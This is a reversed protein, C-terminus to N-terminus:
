RWAFGPQDFQSVRTSLGRGAVERFQYLIAATPAYIEHGLTPIFASLVPQEGESTPTLIPIDSSDLEDVPIRHVEAVEDPSPALELPEDAWLVFPSICYGSRTAYDDLRGVFHSEDLVLGLEERLERLATQELTEGEDVRGGPLAYQGGHRRMHDPRLTLLVAATGPNESRVVVVSVAAHRLDPADLTHTRLNALNATMRRRLDDGFHYTM